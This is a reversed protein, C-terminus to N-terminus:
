KKWLVFTKAAGIVSLHNYTRGDRIACIPAHDALHFCPLKLWNRAVGKDVDKEFNRIDDIIRAALYCEEIKRMEAEELGVKKYLYTDARRFNRLDTGGLLIAILQRGVKKRLFDRIEDPSARGAEEEIQRLREPTMKKM